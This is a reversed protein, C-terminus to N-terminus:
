WGPLYGLAMCTSRARHAIVLGRARLSVLHQRVGLQRGIDMPQDHMRGAYSGHTLRTLEDDHPETRAGLPYRQRNGVAVRRGPRDIEDDLGHALARRVEHRECGTVRNVVDDAREAAWGIQDGRAGRDTNGATDACRHHERDGASEELETGVHGGDDPCRVLM